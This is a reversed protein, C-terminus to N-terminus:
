AAKSKETSRIRGVFRAGDWLELDSGNVLQQAQQTAEGDDGCTVVCPPGSIHGDIDVAYIRYYSM